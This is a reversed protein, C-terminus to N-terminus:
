PNGTELQRVYESVADYSTRTWSSTKEPPGAVLETLVRKRETDDSEAARFRAFLAKLDASTVESTPQKPETTDLRRVIVPSKKAKSVALNHKSEAQKMHSLHSIRIGGVMVGGFMVNADRYLTMSRGVWDAPRDGWEAALVRRMTKCPSYPMRDDGIALWVPQEKTAGRKWGTITVTIPGGMLDDANLQDSKAALTDAISESDM